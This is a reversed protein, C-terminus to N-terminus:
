AFLFFVRSSVPSPGVGSHSSNSAAWHFRKARQATGFAYHPIGPAEKKRRLCEVPPGGVKVSLASLYQHSADGAVSTTGSLLTGPPPRRRRGRWKETLASCLVHLTYSFFPQEGGRGPPYRIM